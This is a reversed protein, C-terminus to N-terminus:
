GAGHAGAPHLEPFLLQRRLARAPLHRRPEDLLGAARQYTGDPNMSFVPQTYIQGRDNYEWRMYLVRGDDALTPFYNNVQDYTIRTIKSGDAECRYLNFVENWWCDVIQGCRTSNFLIRGDPLFCGEIDAAGLGFTLQKVERTALDMAYLHFDDGRDSAKFSFLLRKGDPSVDVDRYCGAKSSLLTTEKWLGDPQYEALCLSSGIARYSRQEFADSLESLHLFTSRRGLVYHRCYAWTKSMAAVPKLREARRALKEARWAAHTMNTPIPGDQAIWVAEMEDVPGEAGACALAAVGMLCVIRRAMRSVLHCRRKAQVLRERRM